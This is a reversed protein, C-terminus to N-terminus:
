SQTPKSQSTPQNPTPLENQGGTADPADPMPKGGAAANQQGAQEAQENMAQQAQAAKQAELYLMGSYINEAEAQIEPPQSEFEETKMWDEMVSKQVPVNDFIRPMFDPVERQEGTVQDIEVRSPAPEDQTGYLAEPGTKLRAIVRTIRGIDLEYSAVLDSAYGGEIAAMAQEATIWGRDAYALIKQEMAVKTRPEISGPAVRVDIQGHLDAGIFDRIVDPSWRGKIRLLRPETYYEQVLRLCETAVRGHWEAVQAIFSQRRAMDREILAQIAKGAEVQGPVDNQAALRAILANSEQAIQFLEQPLAPVDRWRMNDNPNAIEFTAGPESTIVQGQLVGPAVFLQPNLAANKWEVIKNWADDFVRMPDLLHQVLGMDRDNDPDVIYSLPFLCDGQPNPYPRAKCIIRGNAITLWRGAVFTKTPKELYHYVTILESKRAKSGARNSQKDAGADPVLGRGYFGPLSVVEQLTQDQKIIHYPSDEFRVGPEWTTDQAGFIKIKIEGQGVVGKGDPGLIMPGVTNDFYPWAFGEQGVIAHTINKVAGGRVNWRDFGYLAVQEATKAASRKEPDVGTPTVEYSPIRQTASSVEHAVIDMLLNHTGRALWPRKGGGTPTTKTPLFALKGKSDTYAYHNGRWMEFRENISPVLTRLREDSREMRDKVYTDIQEEEPLAGDGRVAGMVSDLLAM